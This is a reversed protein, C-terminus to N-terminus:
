ADQRQEFMPVQTDPFLTLVGNAGVHVPTSSNQEESLKGKLMPKVYKLTHTINVQNSDGICKIDFTITVKGARRTHTVGNSVDAMARQVKQLFVGADLDEFINETQKM